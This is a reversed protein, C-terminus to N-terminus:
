RVSMLSKADTLSIYASNKEAGKGALLQKATLARGRPALTSISTMALTYGTHVGASTVFLSSAGMDSCLSVYNRKGATAMAFNDTRSLLIGDYQHDLLFAQILGIRVRFLELESLM